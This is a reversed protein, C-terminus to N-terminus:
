LTDIHTPLMQIYRFWKSGVGLHKEYLLKAALKLFWGKESKVDDSLWYGPYLFSAPVRPPEDETVVWASMRPVRCLVAGEEIEETAIACRDGSSQEKITWGPCWVGQEVGWEMFNEWDLNSAAESGEQATATCSVFRHPSGWGPM